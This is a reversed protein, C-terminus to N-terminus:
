GSVRKVQVKAIIAKFLQSTDIMLRNFGKIKATVESNRGYDGRLIPNRVIAQLLNEARRAQTRGACLDFFAKTFALIDKNKTSKFPDTYFNIGLRQRLAQSLESITMGSPKSSEKRAPGGAYSKLGRSAPQAQMHDEDQLIGVQFDYKEFVGKAQRTFRRDLKITMRPM